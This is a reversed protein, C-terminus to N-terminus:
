FCSIGFCVGDVYVFKDDFVPGAGLQLNHTKKIFIRINCRHRHM